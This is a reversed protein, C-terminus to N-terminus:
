RPQGITVEYIFGFAPPPPQPTEALSYLQVCPAWIFKPTRVGYGIDVISALSTASCRRYRRINIWIIESATQPQSGPLATGLPRALQCERGCTPVPKLAFVVPSRWRPWVIKCYEYQKM